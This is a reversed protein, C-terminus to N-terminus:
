PEIRASVRNGNNDVGKLVLVEKLDQAFDFSFVPNESVPEFTNMRLVRQGRLTTVEIKSLYFAPIGSVLGTDMPHMVRLRLRAERRAFENKEDGPLANSASQFLQGSVQGLTQSWSGDKRTGGAVTCGGGTSDVWGGGVLWRGDKLRALARVPSSQELKFRFSVKPLAAGEPFYELVKRIPNRDVLVMIQEIGEVGHASITVPVNMPDDAFRPTLVQIRSDFSVRASAGLFTKRMDDWALSQYPDTANTAQTGHAALAVAWLLMCFFRPFTISQMM